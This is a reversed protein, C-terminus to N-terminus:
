SKKRVALVLGTLGGVVAMGGVVTLIPVMQTNCFMAPNPCTDAITRPVMIGATGLVVALGALGFFAGKSKFVGASMVAGVVLLSAGMALEPTRNEDCRMPMGNAMLKDHAQCDTLFPTAALAIGLVAIVIGFVKNM